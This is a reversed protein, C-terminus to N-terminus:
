SEKQFVILKLSKKTSQKIQMDIQNILRYINFGVADPNVRVIKCSLKKKIMLQRSQKYEFDRDAHGRENIEVGFKHGSFDKTKFVANLICLKEKLHLKYQM